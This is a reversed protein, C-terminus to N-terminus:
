FAVKLSSPSLIFAQELNCEVGILKFDQNQRKKKRIQRLNNPRFSDTCSAICSTVVIIKMGDESVKLSQSCCSWAEGFYVFVVCFSWFYKKKESIGCVPPYFISLLSCQADEKHQCPGNQKLSGPYLHWNVWFSVPLAPWCLGPAPYPRNLNFFM